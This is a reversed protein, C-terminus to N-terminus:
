RSTSRGSSTRTREGRLDLLLPVAVGALAVACGLQAGWSGALPQPDGAPALAGLLVATGAGVVVLVGPLRSAASPAVRGLLVAALVGALAALPLVAGTALVAAVALVALPLRWAPRAAGHALATLLTGASRGPAPLAALAPAPRRAIRRHEGRRRRHEPRSGRGPAAALLLSVALLAGLLLGRRYPADPTFLFQVQGGTGAPVLWGQQWGDLRVPRLVTGNLTARWGANANERVALYTPAKDPEVRVTRHTPGWEEVRPEAPPPGTSPLGAVPVLTLDEPRAAATAAVRLRHEGPGPRLTDAGCPRARLAAGSRWARRSGAVSTRVPRGDVELVPGQGCPLVVPDTPHVGAALVGTPGLVAAEAVSAPGPDPWSRDAGPRPSVADVRVTLRDGRLPEFRAVGDRGVRAQRSGTVRGGDRAVVTVRDAAAVRGARLPALRVGTTVRVGPWRLRLEPNASGVPAIWGTDPDGDVAAAPGSRPDPGVRGSSTARLASRPPALLTELGGGSRPRVTLSFRFRDDGDLRITRDLAVDEEGPQERAPICTPAGGTGVCAPRAGDAVGLTVLPAASGTPEPVDLTRIPFLQPVVLTALGAALGRGGGEVAAVTIRLRRTPGEPTAVTQVLPDPSVTEERRGADTEVLLRTPLPGVFQDAPFALQVSSLLVPTALRLELWQGVAGTLAGSMWSTSPDGDVAAYPQHAPSRAILADVDSGASSARVASLGGALRAPTPPGIGAPVYDHVRRDLRYGEDAALTASTGGRVASFGVERRRYSDSLVPTAGAGTDDGALLLARDGLLGRDALALVDEPGGTTRLAGAVPLRAVPRVTEGTVVYVEVAPYAIGSPQRLLPGFSAARVLGGSSELAEHVLEPPTAGARVPDLDNRVVVAGVGSRALATALGPSGRGADLRAGIADLLRITGAPSLPVADRVAWPTRAIPQMVDDSTRGWVYTGFPAGPVVLARGTAPQDSLWGAVERWYAAETVGRTSPVLRGALAPGATVALMAAALAPVLLRVAGPLPVPGLGPLRVRRPMRATALLHALGLALPLRIVPDAKHVNRFPALPGDLLARITGAGPGSGPGVHGATLLAVGVLLAGALFRRHPLGPRALGLLGLAALGGTALVAVPEVTLVFGAPWEPGGAGVVRTVWHSTGRLVDLLTTVSTTVSASEIWDLFPPSYRGLVLLPLAWWACAAAVTAAWWAALRRRARGAPRTLLWWVPLPLIALTAAANVGGAFLLAVGSRAAARRPSALATWGVLPLLVWPAVAAPMVESSIVGLVTLVRPALAYALGAAIRTAQSGIGLRGALRVVGLFATVLLVAHWLRQVVWAPLALWQGVLFFPGMPFLYGYGQNQLQGFSGLPEWLHLSRALLRGPDVVLDLKTDAAIGGANQALALLTLGVCVAALRLRWVTVPLPLRAPSTAATRDPAPLASAPAAPATVTM